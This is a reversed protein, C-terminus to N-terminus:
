RELALAVADPLGMAAGEVWLVEARAAGVQARV